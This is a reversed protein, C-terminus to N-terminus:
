RRWEIRTAGTEPDVVERETLAAPAAKSETERAEQRNRVGSQESGAGTRGTGDSELTLRCVYGSGDITHVAGSVFYKGSLLRSIGRVELVEGAKMDPSGVTTISLRVAGREAKRFRAEAQRKAEHVTSAPTPAAASTATRSLLRTTGSEPDVVETVEALTTRNSTSGKVEAMFTEKRMPDRGSVTEKGAVTEFATELRVEMVVGSDEGGRWHLIRAPVADAKREGFHLGDADVSFAFGEQGALRSLFRADTESAQSVTDFVVETDQIDAAAGTYGNEAAVEKVVASRTVGHWARTRAVGDMLVSVADGEVRLSTFGSLRRVVVRRPVAMKGPYGWSVDLIAGPILRGDDFLALDRNDLELTVRAAAGESEEFSFSTLRGALDLPEGMSAGEDPLLTIRVGPASMDSRGGTM